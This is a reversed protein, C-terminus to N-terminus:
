TRCNKMEIHRRILSTTCSPGGDCPWGAMVGRELHNVDNEATPQPAARYPSLQSESLRVGARLNFAFVRVTASLCHPSIALDSPRSHNNKIRQNLHMNKGGRRSRFLHPSDAVFSSALEQEADTLVNVARMADPVQHIM